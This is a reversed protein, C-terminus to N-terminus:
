VVLIVRYISRFPFSLFSSSLQRNACRQKSFKFLPSTLVHHKGMEPNMACGKEHFAKMVILILSISTYILILCQCPQILTFAVLAGWVVAYLALLIPPFRRKILMPWEPLYPSLSSLLRSPLRFQIPAVCYLRREFHMLQWHSKRCSLINLIYM